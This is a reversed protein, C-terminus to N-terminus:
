DDLERRFKRLRRYVTSPTVNLEEAIQKVSKGAMLPEIIRRIDTGCLKCISQALDTSDVGDFSMERYAIQQNLRNSNTTEGVGIFVAQQSWYRRCADIAANKALKILLGWFSAADELAPFDGKRFKRVFVEFVQNAIDEADEIGHCHLQRLHQECNARLRQGCCEWLEFVSADQHLAVRKLCDIIRRELPCADQPGHSSM